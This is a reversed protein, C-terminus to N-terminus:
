EQQNRWPNEAEDVRLIRESRVLSPTTPAPARSMASRVGRAGLPVDKCEGGRCPAPDTDEATCGPKSAVSTIASWQLEHEGQHELVLHVARDRIKPSYRTSSNMQWTRGFVRRTSNGPPQPCERTLLQITVPFLTRFSGPELMRYLLTFITSLASKRSM